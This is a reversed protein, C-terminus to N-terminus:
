PTRLITGAALPDDIRAIQDRNATWLERVADDSGYVRLAVAALSEGPEVTTFASQPNSRGPARYAATRATSVPKPNEAVVARSSPRSSGRAPMSRPGAPKPFAWLRRDRGISEAVAATPKPSDGQVAPAASPPPSAPSDAVAEVETPGRSAAQDPASTPGPASDPQYLAVAAVGVCLFSLAFSVGVRVDM